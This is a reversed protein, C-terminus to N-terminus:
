EVITFNSSGGDPKKNTKPPANLVEIEDNDGDEKRYRNNENNDQANSNYKKFDDLIYNEIAEDAEPLELSSMQFHMQKLEEQLKEIKQKLGLNEQRVEINKDTVERITNEYKAIAEEVAVPYYGWPKSLPFMTFDNRRMGM